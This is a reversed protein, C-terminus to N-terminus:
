EDIAQLADPQSANARARTIRIDGSLSRCKIEVAAASADGDAADLDNRIDGATSALDLYVGIGPVVAVGIDGSATMLEINGSSVSGLEIDGSATHTAVSGACHGVAVDGSATNILIEGEVRNLQVDGSATNITATGATALLVDGSASAVSVDGTVSAATVDGSATHVTLAGLEGVCSVDASATKAACSSGAPAKITLDLGKKRRFAGHKPGQILLHGDEFQVRVESLLDDIDAGSRSAVVEVAIAATPEGSVAISGSAWSDISIDVPESCPFDWNTM